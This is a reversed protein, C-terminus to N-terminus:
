KVKMIGVQVLYENDSIKELVSGQKNVTLLKNDDGPKLETTSSPNKAKDTKPDASLNPKDDELMEKEVRWEHEKFYTETKMQRIEDVIMEAEERAQQLAKEAKEEAKKFMQERKEEFQEWEKQITNRLNESDMLIRHAEEY